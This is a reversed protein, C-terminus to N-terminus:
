IIWFMITSKSVPFSKCFQSVTYNKM